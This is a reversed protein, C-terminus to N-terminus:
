KEGCVNKSEGPHHNERSLNKGFPVVVATAYRGSSPRAAASHKEDSPHRCLVKSNKANIKERRVIGFSYYSSLSILLILSILILDRYVCIASNGDVGYLFQIRLVYRARANNSGARAHVRARVISLSLEFCKSFSFIRPM